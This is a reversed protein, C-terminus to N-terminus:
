CWINSWIKNDLWFIVDTENDLCSIVGFFKFLIIEWGSSLVNHWHFYQWVALLYWRINFSINDNPWTIVVFILSIQYKMLSSSLKTRLIPQWMNDPEIIINDKVAPPAGLLIINKEKFIDCTGTLKVWFPSWSKCLASSVTQLHIFSCYQPHPESVRDLSPNGCLGSCTPEILSSVKLSWYLSTTM